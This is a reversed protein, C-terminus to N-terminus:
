GEPKTPWEVSDPFNPQQPVDLLEQRYTAWASQTDADLDAWRLANGAIIDVDLLMTDRQQRLQQATPKFSSIEKTTMERSTVAGTKADTIVIISM